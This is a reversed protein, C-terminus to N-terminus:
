MITCEMDDRRTALRKQTDLDLMMFFERETINASSEIVPIHHEVYCDAYPDISSLDNCIKDFLVTKYNIKMSLKWRGYASVHGYQTTDCKSLAGLTFDVSSVGVKGLYTLLYIDSMNATVEALMKIWPISDLYNGLVAAHEDAWEKYETFWKINESVYGRAPANGDGLFYRCQKYFGNKLHDPMLNIPSDTDAIADMLLNRPDNKVILWM